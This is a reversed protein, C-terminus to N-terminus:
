PVGVGFRRGDSLLMKIKMSHRNWQHIICYFCGTLLCRVSVFHCGSVLCIWEGIWWFCRYPVGVGFRRGGFLLMKILMLHRNWHHIICYFCGTLLSRFDFFDLLLDDNHHSVMCFSFDDREVLSLFILSKWSQNRVHHYWIWKCAISAHGLIAISPHAKCWTLPRSFITRTTM